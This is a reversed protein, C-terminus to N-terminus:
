LIWVRQINIFNKDCTLYKYVFPQHGSHVLALSLVGWSSYLDSVKETYPLINLTQSHPDCQLVFAAISLVYIFSCSQTGIVSWKCISFHLNMYNEHTVFINKRQNKKELLKFIYFWESNASYVFIPLPISTAWPSYNAAEQEVLWCLFSHFIVIPCISPRDHMKKRLPSDSYLVIIWFDLYVSYASCPTPQFFSRGTLLAKNLLIIFLMNYPLLPSQILSRLILLKVQIVPHARCTMVLFRIFCLCLSILSLSVSLLRCHLSVTLAQHSGLVLFVPLWWFVSSALFLNEGVLAKLPLVVM